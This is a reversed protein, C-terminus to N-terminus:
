TSISPAAERAAARAAALRHRDTRGAPRHGRHRGLQSAGARHFDGRRARIGLLRRIGAPRRHAGRGFAAPRRRRRGRGVRRGRGREVARAVVGAARHRALAQVLGFGTEQDYGLVHGPASAPRRQLHALGARGRHDSLRHDARRRRRPDPRRQRRARHWANRGLFCRTSRHLPGGGGLALARDLDYRYDEPKPQVSPRCRGTALSRCERIGKTSTVWSCRGCWKCVVGAVGPATVLTNM